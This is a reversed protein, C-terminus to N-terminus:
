GGAEDVSAATRYSVVSRHGPSGCLDYATVTKTASLEFIADFVHRYFLSFHKTLM